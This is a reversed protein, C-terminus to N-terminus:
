NLLFPFCFTSVKGLEELIKEVEQDTFDTYGLHMSEKFSFQEGLEKSEKPRIDFVGSFPFPHGGIFFIFILKLIHNRKYKQIFTVPQRDTDISRM